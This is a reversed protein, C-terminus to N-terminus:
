RPRRLRPPRAAPAPRGAGDAHRTPLGSNAVGRQQRRSRPRPRRRSRRGTLVEELRRLDAVAREPAVAARYAAPASQGAIEFLHHGDPRASTPSSHRACATPGRSRSSTSRESSPLSTPTPMPPPVVCASPSAPWRARRSSRSSPGSSPATHRPSSTPSASPSGSASATALSTCSSPRGCAQPSPCKSCTSWAASRYGSSRAYSRPSRRPSLELVVDRPLNELVTRAARGTHSHMAAGILGSSSPSATASAPSTWLAPGSRRPRSCASSATSCAVGARHHGGMSPPTTLSSCARQPRFVTSVVDARAM